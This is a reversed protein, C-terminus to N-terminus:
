FKLKPCYDKIIDAVYNILEWKHADFTWNKRSFFYKCDKGDPQKYNELFEYVPQQCFLCKEFLWGSPGNEYDCFKTFERFGTKELADSFNIMKGREDIYQKSAFLLFDWACQRMLLEEGCAKGIYIKIDKEYKKDKFHMESVRFIEKYLKYKKMNNSWITM